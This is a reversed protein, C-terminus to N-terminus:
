PITAVPAPVESTRLLTSMVVHGGPACSAGPPRGPVAPVDPRRPPMSPRTPRRRRRSYRYARRPHAGTPWRSEPGTSEGGVGAGGPHAGPGIPVVPRRGRRRHAVGDGVIADIVAAGAARLRVVQAAGRLGRAAIRTRARARPPRARAAAAADSDVVPSRRHRDGAPGDRRSGTAVPAISPRAARGSRPHEPRAARDALVAGGARLMARAGKAEALGAHESGADGRACPGLPAASTLSSLPPPPEPPNEYQQYWPPLPTTM